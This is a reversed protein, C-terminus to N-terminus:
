YLVQANGLGVSLQRQHAITVLCVHSSALNGSLQIECNFQGSNTTGDFGSNFGDTYQSKMVPIGVLLSCPSSISKFPNEADTNIATAPAPSTTNVCMLSQDFERGYFMGLGTSNYITTANTAADAPATLVMRGLAYPSIVEANKNAKMAKLLYQFAEGAGNTMDIYNAPVPNGNILVRIKSLLGECNRLRDEGFALNNNLDVQKFFSLYIAQINSFNAVVPFNFFKQGAAMTLQQTFFTNIPFTISNGASVYNLISTKYSESVRVADYNLRVNDLVYKTNNQGAAPAAIDGANLIFRKAVVSAPNLWLRLNIPQGQSLWCPFLSNQQFLGCYKLSIACQLKNTDVTGAGIGNVLLRHKQRWDLGQYDCAGGFSDVYAQSVGYKEMSSQLLNYNFIDEVEQGGILVSVRQFVSEIHEEFTVFDNAIVYDTLKIYFDFLVYVSSLDVSYDSVPIVFNIYTGQTTQAVEFSSGNSPIIQLRDNREVIDLQKPSEFQLEAPISM